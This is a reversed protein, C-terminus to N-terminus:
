SLLNIRFGKLESYLSRALGSKTFGVVKTGRVGFFRELDQMTYHQVVPCHEFRSLIEARSNESIDRTILLFHLKGKCRILNERGVVLIRSRRVFPFLRDVPQAPGKRNMENGIKTEQQIRLM